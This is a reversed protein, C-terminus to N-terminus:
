HLVFHLLGPGFQVKLMVNVRNSIILVMLMFVWNSISIEENLAEKSHNNLDQYNKEPELFNIIVLWLNGNSIWVHVTHSKCACEEHM